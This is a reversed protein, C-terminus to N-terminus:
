PGLEGGAVARVGYYINHSHRPDQVYALIYLTLWYIRFEPMCVPGRECCVPSGILVVSRKWNHM